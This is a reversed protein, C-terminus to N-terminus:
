ATPKRTTEGMEADQLDKFFIVYWNRVDSPGAHAANKACRIGATRRQSADNGRAALNTKAVDAAPANGTQTEGAIV